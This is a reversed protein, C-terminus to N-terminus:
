LVAALGANAAVLKTMVAAHLARVEPRDVLADRRAASLDSTDVPVTRLVLYRSTVGAAELVRQLRQGAEGCLARGAFLDDPGVPDALVVLSLSSFRGRYIPATGFSPDSTVGAAAFDPWGLGAQGGALLSAFAAPPGPDYRRPHARPPEV